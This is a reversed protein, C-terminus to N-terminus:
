ANPLVASLFLSPAGEDAFEDAYVYVLTLVLSVPYGLLM